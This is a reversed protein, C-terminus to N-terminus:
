KKPETKFTDMYIRAAETKPAAYIDPPGLARGDQAHVTLPAIGQHSAKDVFQFASEVPDDRWREYWQNIGILLPMLEWGKRSLKYEM